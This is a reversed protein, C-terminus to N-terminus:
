GKNYIDSVSLKHNGLITRNAQLIFLERPISSRLNVKIHQSFPYQTRGNHDKRLIYVM